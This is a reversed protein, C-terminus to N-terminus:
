LIWVKFLLTSFLEKSLLPIQVVQDEFGKLFLGVLYYIDTMHLDWITHLKATCVMACIHSKGTKRITCESCHCLWDVPRFVQLDWRQATTSQAFDHAWLNLFLKISIQRSIQLLMAHKYSIQPTVAWFLIQLFYISSHRHCNKEYYVLNIAM